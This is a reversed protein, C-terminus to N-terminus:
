VMIQSMWIKLAKKRKKLLNKKQLIMMKKMMKMMEMQIQMKRTMLIQTHIRMPIQQPDEIRNMLM